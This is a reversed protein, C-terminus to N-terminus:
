YSAYAYQVYRSWSRGPVSTKGKCSVIYGDEDATYTYTTIEDSGEIDLRGPLVPLPAGLINAYLAEAHFSLPYREALFLWPLRSMTNSIGPYASNNSATFTSQHNNTSESISMTGEQLVTITIESYPKGDINEKIGTLIGDESTSYSFTYTRINGGPENRTCSTARGKDDMIYTSENGVEDTIIVKGPEYGLQTAVTHTYEGELWLDTYTQTTTHKQLLENSFAFEQKTTVKESGSGTTETVTLLKIKNETEEEDKNCAAILSLLFLISLCLRTQKM